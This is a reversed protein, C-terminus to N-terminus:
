WTRLALRELAFSRPAVGPANAIRVWAQGSRLAGYVVLRQLFAPRGSFADADGLDTLRVFLDSRGGLCSTADLMRLMAADPALRGAGGAEDLACVGDRWAEGDASCEIRYGNGALVEIRCVTVDRLPLRYVCFGGSATYRRQEGAVLVGGGGVLYPEDLPPAVTLLRVLEEGSGVLFSLDLSQDAVVPDYTDLREFWRKGDPSVAVQYGDGRLRLDLGAGAARGLDFRYVLAQDPGECLRVGAEVRGAPQALHKREGATGPLLVLTRAPPPAYATPAPVICGAATGPLFFPNRLIAPNAPVVKGAADYSPFAGVPVIHKPSTPLRAGRLSIGLFEPNADDQAWPGAGADNWTDCVLRKPEHWGGPVQLGILMEVWDLRGTLGWVALPLSGSYTDFGGPAELRTGNRYIGQRDITYVTMAREFAELYEARGSADYALWLAKTSNFHDWGGAWATGDYGLAPSCMRRVARDLLTGYRDALARDGLETATKLM